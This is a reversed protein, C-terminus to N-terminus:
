PSARFFHMVRQGACTRTISPLPDAYLVAQNPPTSFIVDSMGRGLEQHISAAEAGLSRTSPEKGPKLAM